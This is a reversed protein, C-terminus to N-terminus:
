KKFKHTDKHNPYHETIFETLKKSLSSEAKQFPKFFFPLAQQDHKKTSKEIVSNIPMMLADKADEFSLKGREIEDLCKFINRRLDEFALVKADVLKKKSETPNQLAKRWKDSPLKKYLENIFDHFKDLDESQREKEMQIDAYQSIFDNSFKFNNGLKNKDETFEKPTSYLSEVSALINAYSQSLDKKIQALNDPSQHTLLSTISQTDDAHLILFLFSERDHDKLAMYSTKNFQSIKKEKEASLLMGASHAYGYLKSDNEVVKNQICLMSLHIGMLYISTLSQTALERWIKQGTYGGFDMAQQQQMEPSLQYIEKHFLKHQM